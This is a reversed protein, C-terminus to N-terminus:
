RPFKTQLADAVERDDTLGYTDQVIAKM